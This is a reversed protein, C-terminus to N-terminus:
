VEVAYRIDDWGEKKAKAFADALDSITIDVTADDPTPLLGDEILECWCHDAETLEDDLREIPLGIQEPIFHGDGDDLSSIIISKQEDTIEGKVIVLNYKKYNDADRYLYEIQTNMETGTELLCIEEPYADMTHGDEFEIKWAPLCEVDWEPESCRCAVKFSKGIYPIDEDNYGTKDPLKKEFGVAEYISFAKEVYAKEEKATLQSRDDGNRLISKDLKEFEKRGEAINM